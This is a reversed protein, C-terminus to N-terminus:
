RTRTLPSEFASAPASHEFSFAPPPSQKMALSQNREARLLRRSAAHDAGGDQAAGPRAEAGFLAREEAVRLRPPQDEELAVDDVPRLQAREGVIKAGDDAAGVRGHQDILFAPPHLAHPRRMPRGIGGGGAEGGRVGGFAGGPQRRPEDGGIEEFDPDADIARRHEVDGAFAHVRRDARAREGIGGLPHRRESAGVGVAEDGAANRRDDLVHGAVAPRLDVAVEIQRHHGRAALREGRAVKTGNAASLSKGIAILACMTKVAISSVAGAVVDGRTTESIMRPAIPKSPRMKLSSVDIFASLPVNASFVRAIKAAPSSM